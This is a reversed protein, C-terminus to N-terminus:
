GRVMRQLPQSPSCHLLGSLVIQQFPLFDPFNDSNHNQDHDYHNYKPPYHHCQYSTIQLFRYVFDYIKTGLRLVVPAVVDHQRHPHVEVVLGSVSPKEVQVPLDKLM